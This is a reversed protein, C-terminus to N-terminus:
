DSHRDPRSASSRALLDDAPVCSFNMFRDLRGGGHGAEIWDGRAFHILALCPAPFHILPASSEGGMLFHTFEALGPNHGVILLTKVSASTGELLNRLTDLDSDYLLDEIQCAPKQPFEQAMIDLTDRARRAPSVVALEPILGSVRCYIGMRAADARGRETLPRKLDGQDARAAAESHRTLLLRPMACRLRSPVFSFNGTAVREAHRHSLVPGASTQGRPCRGHERTVRAAAM